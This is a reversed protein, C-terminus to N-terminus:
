QSSLYNIPLCSLMFHFVHPFTLLLVTIHCPTCSIYLLSQKSYMLYILHHYNSPACSIHTFWQSMTSNVVCSSGRDTEQESDPFPDPLVLPEVPENEVETEVPENEVPENQVEEVVLEAEVPTAIPSPDPVTTEPKTEPEPTKV